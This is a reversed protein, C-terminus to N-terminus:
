KKNTIIHNLIIWLQQWTVHSINIKNKETPHSLFVTTKILGFIFIWVSDSDALFDCSWRFFLRISEPSSRNNLFCGFLTLSPRLGGVNDCLWLLVNALLSSFSTTKSFLSCACWGSFRHFGNSLMLIYVSLIFPCSSWWLPIDHWNEYFTKEYSFNSNKKLITNSIM